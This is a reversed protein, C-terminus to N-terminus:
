VRSDALHCAVERGDVTRLIPIEIRCRDIAMPCRPHFLCGSPPSTASPIEGQVATRSRPLGPRAVPVAALLAETYPHLPRGYITKKDGIEVIRGLYMVAVRDAIFKVIRLDHLVFVYSLGRDRQLNVVQGQVSVDLASVPEDCIVLAPDLALGRAIGM